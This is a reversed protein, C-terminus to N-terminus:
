QICFVKNGQSLYPTQSIKSLLFDFLSDTTRLNCFILYKYWGEEFFTIEKHKLSKDACVTNKIINPEAANLTEM